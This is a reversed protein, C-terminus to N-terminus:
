AEVGEFIIQDDDCDIDTQVTVTVINSKIWQYNTYRYIIHKDIDFTQLYEKWQHDFGTENDIILDSNTNYLKYSGANGEDTFSLIGPIQSYKITTNYLLKTTKENELIITKAANISGKWFNENSSYRGIMPNYGNNKFINPQAGEFGFKWVPNTVDPLDEPAEFAGDDEMYHLKIMNNAFTLHVWYNKEAELINEDTVYNKGSTDSWWQFRYTNGPICLVDNKNNGPALIVQPSSVTLCPRVNTILTFDDTIKPLLFSSDNNFNLCDGDNNIMVGGGTNFNIRTKRLRYQEPTWTWYQTKFYTENLDIEGDFFGNGEAYGGLVQYAFPVAIDGISYTTDQEYNIGDTSIYATLMNTGHDIKVKVWYWKNPDIPHTGNMASGTYAWSGSGRGVLYHLTGGNSCGMRIGYGYSTQNSGTLAGNGKFKIGFEYHTWLNFTCNITTVILNDASFGSAINNEDINVKGYTVYPRYFDGYQWLIKGNASIRTNSLDISGYWYQQAYNDSNRSYIPSTLDINFITSTGGISWKGSDIDPLTDVTYEFNTDKLYYATYNTGNYVGKAWVIDGNAVSFNCIDATSDFLGMKGNYKFFHYSGSRFVLQWGYSTNVHLKTIIEFSNLTEDNFDKFADIAIYSSSSQSSIWQTDSLGLNKGIVTFDNGEIPDSNYIRYNKNSKKYFLYQKDKEIVSGDPLEYDKNFKIIPPNNYTTDISYDLDSTYPESPPDLNIIANNDTDTTPIIEGSITKYGDKILRYKIIDGVNVKINKTVM